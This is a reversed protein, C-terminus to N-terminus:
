LKITEDSLRTFLSVISNDSHMSPYFVAYLNIGNERIYGLKNLLMNYVAEAGFVQILLSLNLFFVSCGKDSKKCQVTAQSLAAGIQTLGM